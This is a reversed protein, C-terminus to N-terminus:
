PTYDRFLFNDMQGPAASGVIVSKSARLGGYRFMEGFQITGASNWAQVDTGDRLITFIGTSPDCVASFKADTTATVWLGVQSLANWPGAYLHILSAEVGLYVTQTLERNCCLMVGCTSSSAARSYLNAEVLMADGGVPATYLALQDGAATGNFTARNGSLKIPLPTSQKPLWLPGLTSRNDFNDTYTFQGPEAGTTALMAFPMPYLTAVATTVANAAQAAAVEAATYSTKLADSGTFNLSGSDEAWVARTQLVVSNTTANRMAVAYSEGSNAIIPAALPFERYLPNGAPISASVEQSSVQAINGASDKRYVEIFVNNIGSTPQGLYMAVTDYVTSVRTTVFSARKTGTGAQTVPLYAINGSVIGSTGFSDHTHATGASAPTTVGQIQLINHLIRPYTVDAVAYPAMWAQNAGLNVTAVTVVAAQQNSQQTSVTATLAALAAAPAAGIGLPFGNLASIIANIVNNIFAGAAVALDNAASAATRTLGLFSGLNDLVSGVSPIPTGLAAGIADILPQLLAAIFAAIGSGGSSILATLETMISQILAVVDAGGAEISATLSAVINTIAGSLGAAWSELDSLGGGAIGTLAHVIDGLSGELAALIAGPNTLDLGVFAGLFQGVGTTIQDVSPFGDFIGAFQQMLARIPAFINQIDLLIQDSGTYTGMIAELVDIFQGVVPLGEIFEILLGPIDEPSTIDAPDANAILSQVQSFIGTLIGFPSFPLTPSLGTSNDMIAPFREDARDKMAAGSTDQLTSAMTDFTLAGQPLNPVGGPVTM